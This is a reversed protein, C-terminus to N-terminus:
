LVIGLETKVQRFFTYINHQVWRACIYIATDKTLLGTPSLAAQIIIVSPKVEALKLSTSMQQAQAWFM